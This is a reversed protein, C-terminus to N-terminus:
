KQLFISKLFYTTPIRTTAWHYCVWSTDMFTLNQDRAKRLPNLNWHQWSSHHLDCICSPDRTATTYAPLQLGSKDRLRHVEMDMPAARFLCPLFPLFFPFSFLFLIRSCHRPSAHTQDRAQLLPNLSLQWESEIGPKPGEMHWPHPWKFVVM